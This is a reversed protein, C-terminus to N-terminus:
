ALKITISTTAILGMISHITISHASKSFTMIVLTMISFKVMSLARGLTGGKLLSAHKEQKMASVIRHSFCKLKNGGFLYIVNFRHTLVM